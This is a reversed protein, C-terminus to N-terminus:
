IFKNSTYFFYNNFKCTIEYNGHNLDAVIDNGEENIEFSSSVVDSKKTGLIILKAEANFPVSFNYTVYQSKFEWGCEFHGMPSEYTAKAYVLKESPHPKFIVKKFGPFEEIPNLGCIDCYIWECISGYAYHNFSNMGQPNIKGDPLLSDWREWMSTAGMTVPYLWGPYDKKLFTTVADRTDGAKSLARCLIQTGIFGTCLHFDRNQLLKVLSGLSVYMKDEPQLDHMIALSLATQTQVACRGKPSFYEDRITKLTQIALNHYKEYDENKCLVKAAKSVILLSIYYFVTCVFTNETGGITGNKNLFNKPGDLALWDCFQQDDVEWLGEENIHKQMVEVWMKMGEYQDYLIQKKGCMVYVNWPIITAADSWGIMGETKMCGGIQPCWVPPIGDSDVQHLYLDKLYKRYFAYCNMNFMATKSFIQADGTWGLREDRQPCDTPVDLFNDKQSWLSNSILKNVLPVGTKLNGIIELDSYVVCGVFDDINM